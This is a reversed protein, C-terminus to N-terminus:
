KGAAGEAQVPAEPVSDANLKRFRASMLEVTLHPSVGMRGAKVRIGPASSASGNVVARGTVANVDASVGQGRIEVTKSRPIWKVSLGLAKVFERLSVHVPVIVSSSSRGTKWYGEQLLELWSLAEIRDEDTANGSVFADELLRQGESSNGAMAQNRGACRLAFLAFLVDNTQRAAGAYLNAAQLARGRAERTGRTSEPCHMHHIGALCYRTYAAYGSRPYRRLLEEYSSTQEEFVSWPGHDKFRPSRRLIDYAKRDVGTPETVVLRLENSVATLPPAPWGKGITYTASITYEGVRSLLTPLSRARGTCDHTLNATSTYERGPALIWATVGALVFQMPDRYTRPQEGPSTIRFALFGAGPHFVPIVALDSDGANEVTVTLFLPDDVLYRTKPAAITLRLEAGATEGTLTAGLMFACVLASRLRFSKHRGM